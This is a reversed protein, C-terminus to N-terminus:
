GILGHVHRMFINKCTQGSDVAISGGIIREPGLFGVGPVLVIEMQVVFAHLEEVQGRRM